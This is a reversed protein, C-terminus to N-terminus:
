AAPAHQVPHGPVAPISHPVIVSEKRLSLTTLSDYHLVWLRRWHLTSFLTHIAISFTQNNSNSKHHEAASHMQGLQLLWKGLPIHISLPSREHVFFLTSRCVAVLFRKCCPPISHWTTRCTIIFVIHSLPQYPIAKCRLIIVRSDVADLHIVSDNVNALACVHKPANRLVVNSDSGAAFAFIANQLFDLAFAM